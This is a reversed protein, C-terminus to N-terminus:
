CGYRPVDVAGYPTQYLKLVPAKATLKVGAM